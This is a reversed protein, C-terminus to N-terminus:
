HYKSWWDVPLKRPPEADNAPSKSAFIYSWGSFLLVFPTVAFTCRLAWLAWFLWAEHAPSLSRLAMVIGLVSGTELNAM